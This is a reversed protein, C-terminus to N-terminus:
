WSRYWSGSYVKKDAKRGLRAGNADVPVQDRLAEVQDVGAEIRAPTDKEKKM